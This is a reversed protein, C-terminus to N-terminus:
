ATRGAEQIARMTATFKGEPEAKRWEAAWDRQWDGSLFDVANPLYGRESDPCNDRIFRAAELILVAIKQAHPNSVIFDMWWSCAMAYKVKGKPYTELIEDRAIQADPWIGWSDEFPPAVPPSEQANAFSDKSVSESASPSEPPTKSLSKALSKRSEASSRGGASKRKLVKMTEEWVELLKKNSIGSPHEICEARVIPFEKRFTSVSVRCAAVLVREDDPLYGGNQWMSLLLELYMSRQTPTMALIALNSKWDEVWFMMGRPKKM